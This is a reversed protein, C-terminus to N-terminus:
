HKYLMREFDRQSAHSVDTERGLRRKRKSSKKTRLHSDFAKHRRLRGTGTRKIRKAAAKKTKLKPM